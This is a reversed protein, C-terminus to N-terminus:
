RYRIVQALVAIIGLLTTIQIGVMWLFYRSMKDDMVRFATNTEQRHDRMDARLDAMTQRIGEFVQTQEM